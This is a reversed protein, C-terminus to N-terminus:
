KIINIIIQGQDSKRYTIPTYIKIAELVQWITEDNKFTGTFNLGEIERNDIEIDVNYWNELRRILESFSINQFIFKNDVWGAAISANVQRIVFQSDKIELAQGPQLIVHKDGMSVKINGSVLTIEKRGFDDYSMLNFETGLVEVLVDGAKVYFTSGELKMVQFYAEGYLELERREKSFAHYVLRSSSNLWVQTGDPLRVISKEGRPTEFVLPGDLLTTKAWYNTLLGMGLAVLLIIAAVSSIKIWVKRVGTAAWNSNFESNIRFQIRKWNRIGTEDLVPHTTWEQKVQEFHRRFSEEQMCAIMVQYEDDALQGSFYRKTISDFKNIDM